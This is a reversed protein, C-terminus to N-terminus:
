TCERPCEDTCEECLVGEQKGVLSQTRTETPESGHVLGWRDGVCEDLGGSWEVAVVVGWQSERVARTGAEEVIHRTRRWTEVCESDVGSSSM